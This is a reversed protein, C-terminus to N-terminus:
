EDHGPYPGPKIDRVIATRGSGMCRLCKTDPVNPDMGTGDCDECKKTTESM